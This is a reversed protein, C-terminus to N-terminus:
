NMLGGESGLVISLIWSFQYDHNQTPSVQGRDGIRVFLYPSESENAQDDQSLIVGTKLFERNFSKFPSEKM